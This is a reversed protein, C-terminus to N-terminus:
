DNENFRTSSESSQNDINELASSNKKKNKDRRQKIDRVFGTIQFYCFLCILLAIIGFLIYGVVVM